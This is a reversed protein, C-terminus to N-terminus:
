KFFIKGLMIEEKLIGAPNIEGGLGVWCSQSSLRVNFLGSLHTEDGLKRLWKRWNKRFYRKAIKLQFIAKRGASASIGVKLEFSIIKIESPSKVLFLLDITEKEPPVGLYLDKSKPLAKWIVEGESIILFPNQYIEKIKQDHFEKKIKDLTRKAKQRRM